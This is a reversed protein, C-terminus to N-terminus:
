KGRIVEEVLPTILTNIEQLKEGIIKISLLCSEENSFDYMENCFLIRYHQEIEAIKEGFLNKQEREAHLCYTIEVQKAILKDFNVRTSKNSWTGIEFHLGDNWDKKYFQIYDLRVNRAWQDSPFVNDLMSLFKDKVLKCARNYSKEVADFKERYDIYIKTNEDFKIENPMAYRGKILKMFEKFYTYYEQHAFDDSQIDKWVDAIDEYTMVKFQESKPHSKNYKPKLYIYHVTIGKDKTAESIKQVYDITQENCEFSNIKNEIVIWDKEFKIIIDIRRRNDLSYEREILATESNIEVGAFRCFLRLPMISGCKQTDFLFSLWDSIINENDAKKIVDLFNYAYDNSCLSVKKIVDLFNYAYDNSCLSVKKLASIFQTDLM